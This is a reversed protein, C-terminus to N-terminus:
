EGGKMRAARAELLKQFIRKRRAEANKRLEREQCEDCIDHSTEAGPDGERLVLDCWACICRMRPEMECGERSVCFAGSPRVERVKSRICTLFPVASPKRRELKKCSLKQNRMRCGNWPLDM